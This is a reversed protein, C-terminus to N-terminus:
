RGQRALALRTQQDNRQLTAVLDPVTDAATPRLMRELQSRAVLDETTTASSAALQASIMRVAENTTLGNEAAIRNALDTAAKMTTTRDIEQLLVQYRDVQQQSRAYAVEAVAGGAVASSRNRGYAAAVPDDQVGTGVQDPKALGMAREIQEGIRVVDELSGPNGGAELIRLTQEWTPPLYRRAQQDSSGNLIRGAGSVGTLADRQEIATRLQDIQTKYQEIQKEYALVAKATALAQQITNAPDTVVLQAFAPLPGALLLAVALRQLWRM